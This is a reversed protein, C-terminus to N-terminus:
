VCFVKAKALVMDSDYNYGDANGRKRLIPAVIIGVETGEPITQDGNTVEMVEHDLVCQGGVPVNWNRWHCTIFARSTMIMDCVELGGEVITILQEKTRRKLSKYEEHRYILPKLCEMERKVIKKALKSKGSQRQNENMDLLMRAGTSLWQGVVGADGQQM